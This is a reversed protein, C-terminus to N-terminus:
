KQAKLTHVPLTKLLMSVLAFHGHQFATILISIDRKDKSLLFSARDEECFLEIIGVSADEDGALCASRMMGGIEKKVETYQDSSM